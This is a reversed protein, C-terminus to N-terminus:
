PLPPGCTGAALNSSLLNLINGFGMDGSSNASIAMGLSSSPAFTNNNVCANSAQTDLYIGHVGPGSITTGTIYTGDAEILLV